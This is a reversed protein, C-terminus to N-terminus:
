LEKTAFFYYFYFFPVRNIKLFSIKNYITIQNGAKVASRGPRNQIWQYGPVQFGGEGKVQQTTTRAWNCNEQFETTRLFTYDANISEFPSVVIDIKLPLALNKGSFENVRIGKYM